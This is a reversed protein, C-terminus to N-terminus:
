RRHKAYRTSGLASAPKPRAEEQEPGTQSTVRKMRWGSRPGKPDSPLGEPTHPTGVPVATHPTGVPVATHPTGVPVATHPTGVPVAAGAGTWQKMIRLVNPSGASGVEYTVDDMFSRIIFIGMGREPLEEPPPVGSPDFSKGTDRVCIRLESGTVDIEIDVDGARGDVYGHIAINNFAEGFASVVQADFDEAAKRSAPTASDSNAHVLKSAASVVRLAIDRYELTGPVCLRIV